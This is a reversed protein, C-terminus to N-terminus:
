LNNILPETGCFNGWKRHWGCTSDGLEGGKQGSWELSLPEWTGQSLNLLERSHSMSRPFNSCKHSSVKNYPIPSLLPWFASIRLALFLPPRHCVGERPTGGERCM